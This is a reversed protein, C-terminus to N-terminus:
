RSMRLRDQPWRSAPLQSRPATSRAPARGRCPEPAAGSPSRASFRAAAQTREPAGAALCRARAGRPNSPLAASTEREDVAGERLATAAAIIEAATGIRDDRSKALLRTVLTQYRALQPPLMPLPGSVRPTM